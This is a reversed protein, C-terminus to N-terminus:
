VRERCSARGIKEGSAVIRPADDPLPRQLTLADSTDSDFWRDFEDPSALIVPMVKPHIRAEDVELKADGRRVHLGCGM